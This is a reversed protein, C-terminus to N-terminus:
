SRSASVILATAALSAFPQSLRAFVMRFLVGESSAFPTPDVGPGDAMNM